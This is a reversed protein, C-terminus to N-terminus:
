PTIEHKLDLYGDALTAKQGLDTRRVDWVYRGVSLSSTLGSAITFQFKGRAGDTVTATLPFGGQTTGGLTDKLTLQITWGTIDTYPPTLAFQLTVDEGRFWTLNSTISMISSAGAFRKVDVNAPRIGQPTSAWLLDVAIYRPELILRGGGEQLLRGGAETKLYAPAALKREDARIAPM